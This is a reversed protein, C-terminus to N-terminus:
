EAKALLHLLKDHKQIAKRARQIMEPRVSQSSPVVVELYHRVASELIHRISQGHQYAQQQVAELLPASMLSSFKRVRPKRTAKM